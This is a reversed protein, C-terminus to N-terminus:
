FWFIKKSDGLYIVLWIIIFSEISKWVLISDSNGSSPSWIIINYSKKLFFYQNNNYLRLKASVSSRYQYYHSPASQYSNDSWTIQGACCSVLPFILCDFVGPRSPNSLQENTKSFDEIRIPPRIFTKFSHDPTKSLFYYHEEVLFTHSTDLSCLGPSQWILLINRWRYFDLM